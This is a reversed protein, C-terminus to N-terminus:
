SKIILPHLDLLSRSLSILSCNLQIGCLKTMILTTIMILPPTYLIKLPFIPIPLPLNLLILKPTLFIMLPFFLILLFFMLPIIMLHSPLILLIMMIPWSGRTDVSSLTTETKSGSSQRNKTRQRSPQTDAFKRM